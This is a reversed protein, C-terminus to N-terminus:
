IKHFDASNRQALRQLQDARFPLCDRGLHSKYKRYLREEVAWTVLSNAIGAVLCVLAVFVLKVGLFIFGTTAPQTDWVQILWGFFTVLGFLLFLLGGTIVM